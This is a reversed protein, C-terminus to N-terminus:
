NSTSTLHSRTHRRARGMPGGAMQSLRGSLHHARGTPPPPQGAAHQRSYESGIGLFVAASLQQARLPSRPEASAVQPSSRCEALSDYAATYIAGQPRARVRSHTARERSARGARVRSHTSYRARSFCAIGPLPAGAASAAARAPSLSAADTSLHAPACLPMWPPSPCQTFSPSPPVAVLSHISRAAEVGYLMQSLKAMASAARTSADARAPCHAAAASRKPSHHTWSAAAPPAATTAHSAPSRAAASVARCSSHARRAAAASGTAAALAARAPLLAPIHVLEVDAGCVHHVLVFGM